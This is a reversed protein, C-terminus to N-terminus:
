EKEDCKDMVRATLLAADILAFGGYAVMPTAAATPYTVTAVAFLTMWMIMWAMGLWLGFINPWRFPTCMFAAAVLAFVGWLWTEGGTFDILPQYSPPVFREKGGAIVVVGLGAHVMIMISTIWQTLLREAWASEVFYRLRQTM